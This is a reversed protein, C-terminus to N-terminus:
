RRAISTSRRRGIRRGQADAGRVSDARRCAGRYGCAASRSRPLGQGQHYRRDSRVTEDQLLMGLGTNRAPVSPRVSCCKEILLQDATPRSWRPFADGERLWMVASSPARLHPHREGAHSQFVPELDGPSSSIVKLVESTATQQQLAELSRRHAPAVREAVAHERHRHRGSRCLEQVLEIQKDTFPRVEQRYITIVGIFEGDKLMPVAIQTRVGAAKAIRTPNPSAAM